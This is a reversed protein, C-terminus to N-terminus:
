LKRNIREPHRPVTGRDADRRLCRFACTGDERHRCRSCREGMQESGRTLYRACAEVKRMRCLRWHRCPMGDHDCRGAVRGVHTDVTEMEGRAM